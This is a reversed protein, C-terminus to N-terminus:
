QDLHWRKALVDAMCVGANLVFQSTSGCGNAPDVPWGHGMGSITQFDVNVEGQDGHVSSWQEKSHTANKPSVLSDREGHIISVKPFNGDYDGSAERVFDARTEESMDTPAFMCSFSEMLSFACGYSVGANIAGAKVKDPYSAMLAASMTAGASLGATYYHNPSVNHNAEMYDMMSAISQAEGNGRTVHAKDFWRFCMTFNNGRTQEPLLLAFGYKDAMAKWGTETAFDRANQQCGHLLILTASNDKLNQPIYKYMALGGPNSGFNSVSDYAQAVFPLLLLFTLMRTKKM